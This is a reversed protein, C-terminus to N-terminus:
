GNDVIQTRTKISNSPTKYALVEIAALKMMSGTMLDGFPSVADLV